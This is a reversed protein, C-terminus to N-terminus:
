MHYPIFTTPPIYLYGLPPINPHQSVGYPAYIPYSTCYPCSFIPHPSMITHHHPTMRIHPHPPMSKNPHPTM